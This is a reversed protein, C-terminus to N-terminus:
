FHFISTYTGSHALIGVVPPDADGLGGGAEVYADKLHELSPSAYTAAKQIARYVEPYRLFRQKRDDDAYVFVAHDQSNEAHFRFLEPITLSTNTDPTKFTTSKAGQAATVRPNPTYFGLADKLSM